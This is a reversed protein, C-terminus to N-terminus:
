LSLVYTTVSQVTKTGNYDYRQPQGEEPPWPTGSVWTVQGTVTEVGAYNRYQYLPTISAAHIKEASSSGPLRLIRNAVGSFEISAIGSMDSVLNYIQDMRLLINATNTFSETGSKGGGEDQNSGVFTTETTTIVIQGGVPYKINSTKNKIKRRVKNRNIHKKKM